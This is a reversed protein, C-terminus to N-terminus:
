AQPEGQTIATQRRSVLVAGILGIALILMLILPLVPISALTAASSTQGAAAAPAAVPPRVQITDLTFTGAYEPGQVVAAVTWTGGEPLDVLAEWRGDLEAPSAAVRIVTADAVRNFVIEVRNADYPQEDELVWLGVTASGGATLTGGPDFTASVGECADPSHECKALVGGATALVLALAAVLPLVTRNGISRSM